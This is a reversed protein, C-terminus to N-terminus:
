HESTRPQTQVWNVAFGTAEYLEGIDGWAAARYPPRSDEAISSHWVTRCQKTKVTKVEKAIIVCFLVCARM